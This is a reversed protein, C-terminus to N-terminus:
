VPFRRQELLSQLHRHVEAMQRQVADLTWPELAALDLMPRGSTIRAAAAELLGSGNRSVIDIPAGPIERLGEVETAVVPLGAALAEVIVRPVGEVTSSLVLLDASGLLAPIDPTHGLLRVQGELGRQSLLAELPAREPGEGAIALQLRGAALMPQLREITLAHRKRPELAGVSVALPVEARLGRFARERARQEASFDRARVFQEIDIPTRVIAARERRGIGAGLYRERLEEGVYILLDTFAGCRRELERYVLSAGPSYGPGFSAMHVSHVIARAHGRAALRALIGAKSQHTHVVDFRGEEIMRRLQLFARGDRWPRVSRGLAPVPHLASGFPADFGENGGAAIHVEHGLDLEFRVLREIDRESGGGLLRTAVHLIRLSRAPEVRPPAAPDAAPM